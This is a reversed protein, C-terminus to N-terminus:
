EKKIKEKDIIDMLVKARNQIHQEINKIWHDPLNYLPHKQFQFRILKQIM